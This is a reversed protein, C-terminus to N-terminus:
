AEDWQKRLEAMAAPLQARQDSWEAEISIRADYGIAKLVRFYPRLDDGDVGPATRRAEAAHVHALWPRVALLADPSEHDFMMHFTDALLRVAPCDAAEVIQRGKALSNILNCERSNLSEVALTVGHDSAWPGIRQLLTVMQQEAQQRAFGEPIRRSGSSGFAIMRVGAQQARVFANRAYRDLADADVAPGVCKLDAPLFCNMTEVPRPCARIQELNGQWAADDERPVLWGQVHGVIFDLGALDYTVAQDLGCCVGFKM